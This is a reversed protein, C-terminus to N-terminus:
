RGLQRKIASKFEYIDIVGDGNTDLEKFNRIIDSEGQEIANKIEEIKTENANNILKKNENKKKKM